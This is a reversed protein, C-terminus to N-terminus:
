KNRALVPLKITFIAGKGKGESTANITGHHLRVIQNTIALGLGLGGFNRTSSADAQRFREFIFPLFEASIGKGSDKIVMQIVGANETLVAKIQGGAPTFKVANSLLNQIVLKIKEDDGLIKQGNLQNDKILEIQKERAKPEFEEFTNEFMESFNIERGDFTITGSIIQSYDLLEEILETQLRLNKEIKEFALKKTNGSLNETKLINSWGSIANLPTRLEHSVVAIFEDKTKNAQEASIRAKQEKELLIQKQKQLDFLKAATKELTNRATIEWHTASFLLFSFIIGSIFILITWGISSQEGFEPLTSYELTWRRGALYIEKSTSYNGEMNGVFEKNDGLATQALLNEDKKEIDYIKIALNYSKTNKQIESLFENARFSSFIYGLLNKRREELNAPIRGNKYVPLFILFGTQSKKEDIEDLKIKASIIPMATDTAQLMAESRNKESALDFGILKENNANQPELFLVVQYSEKESEPSIKFDAYGQEAMAKALAERETPLITKNYGIGEIGAYNKDIELSEVYRSFSERNPEVSSEIFGRGGKLLATYLNIKNEIASQILGVENNFRITDKSVASNYFNYTVGCTIFISLALVLYPLIANKKSENEGFKEELSHM